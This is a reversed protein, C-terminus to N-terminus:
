SAPQLIRAILARAADADAVGRLQQGAVQLLVVATLRDGREFAGKAVSLELKLLVALVRNIKGATALADVLASVVATAQARSLVSVTQSTAATADDDSVRVTLTFVGAALYPHSLSFANGTLALPSAGSGDGFDVSAIWADAGPDSFSGTAVYSEGVILSATPLAGLTPAVNAVVAQTTVTDTLGDNDTVTLTVTYVGDQAYLHDVTAGTATSGDGFSWAYDVVTGNPDFSASANM